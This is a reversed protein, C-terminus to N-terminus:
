LSGYRQYYSFPPFKALSNIRPQLSLDNVTHGVPAVARGNKNM